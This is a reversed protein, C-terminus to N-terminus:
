ASAMRVPSPQAWGTRVLTSTFTVGAGAAGTTAAGVTVTQAPEGAVNVALVTVPTVKLQYADAVPPVESNVPAVNVVPANVAVM